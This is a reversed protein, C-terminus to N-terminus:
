LTCSRKPHVPAALPKLAAAWSLISPMGLCRKEVIQFVEKEVNLIVSLKPQIGQISLKAANHAALQVQNQPTYPFDCLHSLNRSLLHLGNKSYKANGCPQYTIPCRNM